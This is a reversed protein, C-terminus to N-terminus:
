RQVVVHTEGGAWGRSGGDLGCTARGRQGEIHGWDYTFITALKHISGEKDVWAFVRRELRAIRPYLDMMALCATLMVSRAHVGHPCGLAGLTRAPPAESSKDVTQIRQSNKKLVIGLILRLGPGLLARRLQSAHGSLVALTNVDVHSDGVFVLPCLRGNFKRTATM